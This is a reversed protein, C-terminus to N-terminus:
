EVKLVTTLINSGPPTAPVVPPTPIGISTVSVHTHTNFENNIFNTLFNKLTEGMIGFEAGTGIDVLNNEGDVTIFPVGNVQVMLKGNTIINVTPNGNKDIKWSTGQFIGQKQPYINDGSSAGTTPDLQPPDGPKAGNGMTQPDLPFPDEGDDSMTTANMQCSASGLIIPNFSSGNLFGIIVPQGIVYPTEESNQFTLAPSASTNTFFKTHGGSMLTPVDQIVVGTPALQVTYTLYTGPLNLLNGESDTRDVALVDIITGAM